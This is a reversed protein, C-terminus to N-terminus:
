RWYKRNREFASEGRRHSLIFLLRSFFKKKGWHNGLEDEMRYLNDRMGAIVEKQRALEELTAAGTELAINAKGVARAGAEIDVLHSIEGEGIKEQPPIQRQRVAYPTTHFHHLLAYAEDRKGISTFGSFVATVTGDMSEVVLTKDRAEVTAVSRMSLRLSPKDSAKFFFLGYQTIYIKGSTSASSSSSSLSCRYDQVVKEDSGAPLNFESRLLTTKEYLKAHANNRM